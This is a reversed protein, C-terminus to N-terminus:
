AKTELEKVALEYKLEFLIHCLSTHKLEPEM